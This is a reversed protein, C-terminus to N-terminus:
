KTHLIQWQRCQKVYGHESVLIQPKVSFFPSIAYSKKAMVIDALWLM